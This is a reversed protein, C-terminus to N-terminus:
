TTLLLRGHRRAFKWGSAGRTLVDRFDGAIRGSEAVPLGNRTPGDARAAYLVVHSYAEARDHSLVDVVINSCIHFTRRDPSRAAYDAAIAEKGVLPMDPKSPRVVVADETFLDVLETYRAEDSLNFAHRVLRACEHEVIMRELASLGGEARISV